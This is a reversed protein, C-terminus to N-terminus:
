EHDFEIEQKTFKFPVEKTHIIMFSSNKSELIEFIEWGDAEKETLYTGLEISNSQYACEFKRM